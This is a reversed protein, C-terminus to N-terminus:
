CSDPAKRRQAQPVDMGSTKMAATLAGQKKELGNAYCLWQLDRLLLVFSEGPSLGLIYLIEDPWSNVM